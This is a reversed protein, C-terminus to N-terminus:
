HFSIILGSVAYIGDDKVTIGYQLEGDGRAFRLNDVWSPKEGDWTIIPTRSVRKRDGLKIQVTAGDARSLAYSSSVKFPANLASLDLVPSLHTEDGLTVAKKLTTTMPQFRDLVILPVSGSGAIIGRDVFTGVVHKKGSDANLKINAAIDLTVNTLLNDQGWFSVMRNNPADTADTTFKITGSDTATVGVFNFKSGAKVTLTHGNMTLTHPFGQVFGCYTNLNNASPDVVLADGALELDGICYTQYNADAASGPTFVIAGGGDIGTGKINFSYPTGAKSCKGGWDFAAGSDAVTILAKAAGWPTASVGSKLLGANVLTGGTYTQGSKAGIFTGAGDKVLKLSGALTVGVNEVVLGVPVSVHLEGGGVSDTITGTGALDGVTLKHGKLDINGDIEVCDGGLPEGSVAGVNVSETGNVKSFEVVENNKRDYIKAVGGVTVPVYDRVLTGNDFIRCSHFRINQKAYQRLHTSENGRDQGFLFLTYNVKFDDQSQMTHKVDGNVKLAGGSFDLECRGNTLATIKGGGDNGYGIYVKSGDNCVAYAGSKYGNNWAGFWYEGTSQITVDMVVRTNNDPKFGTDVYVGEGVDVYEVPLARTDTSALASWDADAALTCSAIKTGNGPIAGPVPIGVNTVSWNNADTADKPNGDGTWVAVRGNCLSDTAAAAVAVTNTTNGSYDLTGTGANAFCEGTVTDYLVAEQSATDGRLAPVLDVLPAGSADLVKAYYWKANCYRDSLDAYPAATNSWTAGLLVPRDITGMAGKDLTGIQQQTGDLKAVGDVVSIEHDATSTALGEFSNSFAKGRWRLYFRDAGNRVYRGITFDDLVGGMLSAYANGGTFGIYRYKIALGYAATASVGTNIYQTDNLAVYGDILRVNSTAIIRMYAGSPVGAKSLTYTAAFSSVAPSGDYAIRNATPWDALKEGRDVEDWVLYLASTDDLVGAPVTVSVDNGSIAATLPEAGAFAPIGAGTAVALIAAIIKKANM